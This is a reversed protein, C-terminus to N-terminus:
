VKLFQKLAALTDNIREPNLAYCKANERKREILYGTASLQKLHRSAASQSLDLATIVDQACQEGQDAIHGLVRLRTDDALASLRVLLEARSLASTSSHMGSPLRAGFTLWLTDDMGGFLGQYPGLHPSPVFVLRKFGDIYGQRAPNLQGNTVFQAAEFNSMGSFDVQQFADVAEQLMPRAQVWEEALYQEWMERLHGIIVPKLRPLDTILDHAELEIEPILMADAFTTTLFDLYLARDALLAERTPVEEAPIRDKLCAMNLYADLLKDRLREAPLAELARVYATFSPYSREPEVIYYLGVFVLKHAHQQEPTMAAFTQTVWANLGAYDEQWNLLRLSAIANFAPELGVSFRATEPTILFDAEPM